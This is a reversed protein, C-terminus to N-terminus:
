AVGMATLVTSARQRVDPCTSFAVAGNQKLRECEAIIQDRDTVGQDMVWKLVDRTMRTQMVEDPVELGSAPASTEGDELDPVVSIATKKDQKKPDIRMLENGTADFVLTFGTELSVKAGGSVTPKVSRVVSGEVIDGVSPAEWPGTKKNTKKSVKKPATRKRGSAEKPASDKASAPASSPAPEPPAPEPVPEPAPEPAEAPVDPATDPRSSASVSPKQSAQPTEARKSVPIEDPAVVPSTTQAARARASVSEILRLIAAADSQTLGEITLGTLSSWRIVRESNLVTAIATFSEVQKM